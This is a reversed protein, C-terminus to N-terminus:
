ASLAYYAVQINSSGNTATRAWIYYTGAAVVGSVSIGSTDSIKDPDIANLLVSSSSASESMKIGIATPRGSGYPMDIRVIGAKAMTFSQGTSAYSTTTTCAFPGFTQYTLRNNLSTIESRSPLKSCQWTGSTKTLFYRDDQGSWGFMYIAAHDTGSHRIIQCFKRGGTIVVGGLNVGTSVQVEFIKGQFAGLSAIVSDFADFSTTDAPLEISTNPVIM